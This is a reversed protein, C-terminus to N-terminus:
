KGHGIIHVYTAIGTQFYQGEVWGGASPGGGILLVSTALVTSQSIRSSLRM